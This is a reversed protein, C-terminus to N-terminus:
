VRWGPLRWDQHLALLRLLTAAAAASVLSAWQPAGGAQAAIM